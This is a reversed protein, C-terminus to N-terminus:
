DLSDFFYVDLHHCRLQDLHDRSLVDIDGDNATSHHTNYSGLAHQLSADGELDDLLLMVETANPVSVAVVVARQLYPDLVEKCTTQAAGLRGESALGRRKHTQTTCSSMLPRAWSDLLRHM